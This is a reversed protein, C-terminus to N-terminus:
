NGKLLRSRLFEASDAGNPPKGHIKEILPTAAQKVRDTKPLDECGSKDTIKYFCWGDPWLSRRGYAFSLTISSRSLEFHNITADHKLKWEQTKLSWCLVEEIDSPLFGFWQLLRKLKGARFEPKFLPAVTPVIEINM